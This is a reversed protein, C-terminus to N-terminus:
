QFGAGSRSCSTDDPRLQYSSAAATQDIGYAKPVYLRYPMIEGAGELLYHRELDGTLGAYPDQGSKVAAAAREAAALEAMVDFTRLEIRAATRTGFAIEQFCSTQV